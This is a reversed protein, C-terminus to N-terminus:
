EAGEDIRNSIEVNINNYMEVLNNLFEINTKRDHEFLEAKIKNDYLKNYLKIILLIDKENIYNGEIIYKNNSISDKIQNIPLNCYKRVIKICKTM